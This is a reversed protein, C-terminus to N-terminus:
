LTPMRRQSIWSMLTFYQLFTLSGGPHGSQANSVEKIINKRINKAHDQMAKLDM